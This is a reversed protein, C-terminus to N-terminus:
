RDNWTVVEGSHSPLAQPTLHEALKQELRKALYPLLVDRHRFIRILETLAKEKTVDEEQVKVWDDLINRLERDYETRTGVNVRRKYNGLVRSGLHRAIDEMKGEDIHGGAAYDLILNCEEEGVVDRFTMM